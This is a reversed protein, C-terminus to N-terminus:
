SNHGSIKLDECRWIKANIFINTKWLWVQSFGHLSLKTQLVIVRISARGWQQHLVVPLHTIRPVQSKQCILELCQDAVLWPGGYPALLEPILWSDLSILPFLQVYFLAIPFLCARGILSDISYFPSYSWAWSKQTNRKKSMLKDIWESVETKSFIWLMVLCRKEM